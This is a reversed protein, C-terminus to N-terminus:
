YDPVLGQLHQDEPVGHHWVENLMAGAMVIEWRRKRKRETEEEEGRRELREKEKEEEKERERDRAEARELMIRAGERAREREIDLVIVPHGSLQRATIFKEVSSARQGPLYISNLSPLVDAVVEQAIGELAMSVHKALRRSAHLTHVASFQRLLLPWDTRALQPYKHDSSELKLHVVNSLTASSQNLVQAIHPVQWDIGRCSIVIKAPPRCSTPHNEYRRLEHRCMDFSVRDGSLTVQAHTFPTMKLVSRKIFEFLQPVQFDVLQNLYVILIRDLQPSDIQAVLDELYESAGRFEFSTLAPLLMRTIPPLTRGPSPIASQFQLDFANLSPLAALCTAMAQPSIYGTPPIRHLELTVLHSTSLLLAPLLDSSCM